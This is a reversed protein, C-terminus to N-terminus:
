KEQEKSEQEIKWHEKLAKNITGKGFAVVGSSGHMGAVLGGNSGVPYNKAMEDAFVDEMRKGVLVDLTKKASEAYRKDNSGVYKSASEFHARWDGEEYTMGIRVLLSYLSIMVPSYMWKKDGVFVYIDDAGDKYKGGYLMESPEFDFAKDAEHLFRLSKECMEAMEKKGKFRVALRTKEMDVPPNEGHVHSFSFISVKTENIEAWIADQLFDKCYAFPHCQEGEASVFAFELGSSYIQSMRRDDFWKKIFSERDETEPQGVTEEAEPKSEKEM